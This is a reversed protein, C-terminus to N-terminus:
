IFQEDYITYVFKELYNTVNNNPSNMLTVYRKYFEVGDEISALVTFYKKMEDSFTSFLMGKAYKKELFLERMCTHYFHITGVNLIPMRITFKQQSKHPITILYVFFEKKQLNLISIFEFIRSDDDVISLLQQLPDQFILNFNMNMSDCWDHVRGM